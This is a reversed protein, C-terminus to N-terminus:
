FAAEVGITPLAPFMSVGSRTAPTHDFNYFYFLVNKRNTANLVQLYPTLTGWRHTYTRRFTLDLRSYAPYRQANRQGPVVYVATVVADGVAEGSASVVRGALSGATQARADAPAGLLMAALAFIFVAVATPISRM